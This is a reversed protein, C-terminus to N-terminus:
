NIPDLAKFETQQQELSKPDGRKAQELSKFVEPVGYVECIKAKLALEVSYGLIYFAGDIM